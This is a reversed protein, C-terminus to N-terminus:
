CYGNCPDRQQMEIADPLKPLKAVFIRTCIARCDVHKSKMVKGSKKSFKVPASNYSEMRKKDCEHDGSDDGVFEVDGESPLMM